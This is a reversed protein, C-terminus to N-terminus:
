TFVLRDRLRTGNVAAADTTSAAQWAELKIVGEDHVVALWLVDQEDDYALAYAAQLDGFDEYDLAEWSDGNDTSRLVTGDEFAAFLVDTGARTM